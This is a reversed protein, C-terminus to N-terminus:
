RVGWGPCTNLMSRLGALEAADVHLRYKAKVQAYATGYACWSTRDTPKWKGPDKDSKSGNSKGTVALLNGHDNYFETRQQATWGRAGSRNAEKVPVVHDVQLGDPNSVKVGDYASIWCPVPTGEPQPCRPKCGKDRQFPSGAVAQKALVLERTNCGAGDNTWGGWADRNYHAGTDETRPEGLAALLGTADAPSEDAAVARCGSLAVVGVLVPVWRGAM